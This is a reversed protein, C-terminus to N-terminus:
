RARTPITGEGSGTATVRGSNSMKVSLDINMGYLESDATTYINIVRKGNIDTLAGDNIDGLFSGKKFSFKATLLGNKMKLALKDNRSGSRPLAVLRKGSVSIDFTKIVGSVLFAMTGPAVPSPRDYTFSGSISDAGTKNPDAIIKLPKSTYVLRDQILSVTKSGADDPNSGLAAELKTPVGDLDADFSAETVYVRFFTELSVGNADAVVLRAFYPGAEFYFADVTPGSLELGGIFWTYVLPETGSAAASFVITEQVLAPQPTLMIGSQLEVRSAVDAGHVMVSTVLVASLLYTTRM